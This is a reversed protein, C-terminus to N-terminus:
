SNGFSSLQKTAKPSVIFEADTCSLSICQQLNTTAEVATNGLQILLGLRGRRGKETDNDYRVDVYATHQTQNNAKIKMEYPVMLKLYRLARKASVFHVTTPEHLGACLISVAIALDPGTRKTLYMLSGTISRYVAYQNTAFPTQNTNNLISLQDM